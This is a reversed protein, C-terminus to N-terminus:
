SIDEAAKLLLNKTALIGQEENLQDGEYEVGIYGDYGADKVMQLMRAYDITTENGSEDFDYSKASIAKAYPLIEKMGQYRDYEEECEGWRAGDKRKVCFNGFDPLTGCNQMNIEEMVEALLKGNSSLWGHNEVLVNVGLPAAYASLKKLSDVSYQKWTEPDTVGFLNVRISHCGLDKAAKVWKKHKEVALNRELDDAVAFDGEGDVMIILNKLEYKDSEAKLKAVLADMGEAENEYGELFKSYLQSVYELGGFGWQKAKKAFDFPDLGEEMIMKHISWQALSLQFFPEIKEQTKPQQKESKKSDACSFIGFASVALGFQATNQIFNRRNM